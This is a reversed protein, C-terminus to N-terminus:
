CLARLGSPCSRGSSPDTRTSLSSKKIPYEDIAGSLLREFRALDAQLDDPHTLEAWSLRSLEERSYGLMRCLRDNVQLWGKEPSTIAM